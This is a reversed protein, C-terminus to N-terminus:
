PRRALIAFLARELAPAEKQVVNWVIELNVDFYVHALRNRVSRWNRWAISPEQEVYAPFDRQVCGAAEGINEIAKLTALQVVRDQEFGDMSMNETAAFIDRVAQLMHRLYDDVTLTRKM